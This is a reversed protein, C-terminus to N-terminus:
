SMAASRGVYGAICDFPVCRERASVFRFSSCGTRSTLFYQRERTPTHSGSTRAAARQGARRGSGDIENSKSHLIPDDGENALLKPDAPLAYYERIEDLV